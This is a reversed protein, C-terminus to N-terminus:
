SLDYISIMSRHRKFRVVRPCTTVKRTFFLATFSGAEQLLGHSINAIPLNTFSVYIYILKTNILNILGICKHWLCM